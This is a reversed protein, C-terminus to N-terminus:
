KALAAWTLPGCVGDSTLGNARQFDLVAYRTESGFEGDAGYLPLKYGKAQLLKQMIRVAVGESGTKITPVESVESNNPVYEPVTGINPEVEYFLYPCLGFLKFASRTALKSFTVGKSFSQAEVVYGNGVYVGVHSRTTNFVLAGLQLESVDAIKGKIKCAAYMGAASLDPVGNSKYRITEAEDQWLYSKILGVCDTCRRGTTIHTKYRHMRGDTYHTPYQKAKATLLSETCAQGFTGYWYVYKGSKYLDFAYQALGAGTKIM